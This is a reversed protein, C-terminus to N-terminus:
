DLEKIKINRFWVPQEEKGHLGQFGIPGSRAYDKLPKSFKNDTGDPNKHAETWDNLDINIVQEGNFVVHIRSDKCTITYRNWEGAPKEMRKSPAKADYIAGVMGYKGGDSTEHVQVEIASLESSIDGARLFVGSNAHKAVKFELDLIFNGYSGQTWITGHNHARLVGDEIVWGGPDFTANSLDQDFLDEWEDTVPHATTSLEDDGPPSSCSIAIGLVLVAAKLISKTMESRWRLVSKSLGEALSVNEAKRGRRAISL